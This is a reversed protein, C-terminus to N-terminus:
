YWAGTVWVEPKPVEQAGYSAGRQPGVRRGKKVLGLHFSPSQSPACRDMHWRLHSTCRLRRQSGMGGLRSVQM